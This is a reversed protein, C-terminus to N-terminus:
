AGAMSTLDMGAMAGLALLIVKGVNTLTKIESLISALDNEVLNVRSELERIRTNQEEDPNLNLGESNGMNGFYIYGGCEIGL